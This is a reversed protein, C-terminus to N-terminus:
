IRFLIAIQQLATKLFPWTPPVRLVRIDETFTTDEDLFRFVFWAPLHKFLGSFFDGGSVRRTKLVRLMISDYFRFRLASRMTKPNPSGNKIWDAVFSEIKRQTRKFAYGSSGKVFGGPTGIHVVRGEQAQLPVDAMPIVGFETEKLEFDEIQLQNQIYHRLADDYTEQSCLGPSFVTYEVLAETSSFPLVYVFRTDGMQAVRYDMFTVIEPDFSPAPTQIIWGKFHQLLQTHRTDPHPLDIKERFASNFVWNAKFNGATTEVEGQFADIATIDALVWEINQKKSLENKAWQYFDIGRVMCYRYPEIDMLQDFDPGYFRCKKWSHQIVPPIPESESAWFCWTRDNRKKEDRDILVIKKDDFFPQRAFALALTLGALGTGAIIIDAQKTQM